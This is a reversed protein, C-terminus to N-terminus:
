CRFSLIYAGTGFVEVNMYAIKPIKYIFFQINELSIRIFLRGRKNCCIDKFAKEHHASLYVLSM